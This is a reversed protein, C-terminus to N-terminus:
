RSRRVSREVAVATSVTAIGIAVPIVVALHPYMWGEAHGLGFRDWVGLFAALFFLAVALLVYSGARLLLAMGAIRLSQALAHRTAAARIRRRRARGIMGCQPRLGVM